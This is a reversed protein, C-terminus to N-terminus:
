IWWSTKTKLQTKIIAWIVYAPRNIIEMELSNKGSFNTAFHLNKRPLIDGLPYLWANYYVSGFDIDLYFKKSGKFIAFVDWHAVGLRSSRWQTDNRGGVPIKWTHHVAPENTFIKVVTDADNRDIQGWQPLPLLINGEENLVSRSWAGKNWVVFNRNNESCKLNM